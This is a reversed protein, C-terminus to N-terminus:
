GMSALTSNALSMMSTSAPALLASVPKSCLSDSSCHSSPKVAEMSTCWQPDSVGFSTHSDRHAMQSTYPLMFESQESQPTLSIPPLSSLPPAPYKSAACAPRPLSDLIIAHSDDSYDCQLPLLRSQYAKSHSTWQITTMISLVLIIRCTMMMTMLFCTPIMALTHLPRVLITTIHSLAM